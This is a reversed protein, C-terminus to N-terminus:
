LFNFTSKKQRYRKNPLDAAKARKSPKVEWITKREEAPFQQDHLKAAMECEDTVSDSLTSEYPESIHTHTQLTVHVAPVSGNLQSNTETSMSTKAEAGLDAGSGYAAADPNSPLVDNVLRNERKGAVKMKSAAVDNVTRDGQAVAANTLSVEKTHEHM